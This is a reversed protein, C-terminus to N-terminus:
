LKMLYKLEALVFSLRAQEDQLIMLNKRVQEILQDQDKESSLSTETMEELSLETDSMAATMEQSNKKM